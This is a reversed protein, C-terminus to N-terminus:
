YSFSISYGGKYRNNVVGSAASGFTYRMGVGGFYDYGSQLARRQLLVDESSASARPVNRQDRTLSFVTYAGVTLGKAVRVDFSLAQTLSYQDLHGLYQKGMTVLTVTGWSQRLDVGLRVRHLPLIEATQGYVTEERYRETEVGVDYRATVLRSTSQSYPFLSREIGVRVGTQLLRNEFRSSSVDASGGVTTKPGVSYAAVVESAISSQENRITTDRAALTETEPLNINFRSLNREAYVNVGVKWRNTVRSASGYFRSSLSSRNEDGSFNGAVTTSFVWDNWPDRVPVAPAAEVGTRAAITVRDLGGTQALYPMLGAALTRALARRQVDDTADAALPITYTDTRGDFRGKGILRVTYTSGGAGNADATVLAQVDANALDRVFSVYALETQQFDDDCYARQCALVVRLPPATQARLAAPFLLVAFSLFRLLRPM